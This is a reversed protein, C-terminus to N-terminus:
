QAVDGIKPQISTGRVFIRRGSHRRPPQVSRLKRVDDARHLVVSGLRIHSVDRQLAGRELRGADTDTRLCMWLFEGFLFFCDEHVYTRESSQRTRKEKGCVSPLSVRCRFTTRNLLMTEYSNRQIYAPCTVIYM